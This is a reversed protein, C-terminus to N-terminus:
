SQKHKTKQNWYRTKWHAGRKKNSGVPQNSPVVKMVDKGASSGSVILPHSPSSAESQAKVSAESGSNLRSESSSARSSESAAATTSSTTPNVSAESSSQTEGAHAGTCLFVQAVAVILSTQLSRSFVM